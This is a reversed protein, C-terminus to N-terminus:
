LQEPIIEAKKIDNELWGYQRYHFKDRVSMKVKRGLLDLYDTLMVCGYWKAKQEMGNLVREADARTAHLQVRLWDELTLDELDVNKRRRYIHEPLPKNLIIVLCKSQEYVLFHNREDRYELFPYVEETIEIANYGGRKLEACLHTKGTPGGRGFIIYTWDKGRSKAFREVDLWDLHETCPTM